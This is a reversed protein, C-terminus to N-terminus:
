GEGSLEAFCVGSFSAALGAIGWSIFTSPGAYSHSILGCLVFIGSGITGGVGVCVLDFLSLHRRLKDGGEEESDSDSSSRSTNERGFVHEDDSSDNCNHIAWLPKRIWPTMMRVAPNNKTFTHYWRTRFHNGITLLRPTMVTICVIRRTFFFTPRANNKKM